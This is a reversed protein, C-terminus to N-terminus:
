PKEYTTSTQRFGESSLRFFIQFNGFIGVNDFTKEITESLKSSIQLVLPVAAQKLLHDIYTLYLRLYDIKLHRM